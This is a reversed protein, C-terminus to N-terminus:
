RLAEAFEDLTKSHAAHAALSELAISDNMQCIAREIGNPVKGFKARLFTLVMGRGAEAKGEVRGERILEQATTMAMNTAELGSDMM